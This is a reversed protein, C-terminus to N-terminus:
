TGENLTIKNADQLDWPKGDRPAVASAAQWMLFCAAGIAVLAFFLLASYVDPTPRQSGRGGPMQMGFQSM